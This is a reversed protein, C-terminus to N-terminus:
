RGCHELYRDTGRAPGDRGQKRGGSGEVEVGESLKLTKVPISEGKKGSGRVQVSPREEGGKEVGSAINQSHIAEGRTEGV